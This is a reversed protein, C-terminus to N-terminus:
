ERNAELEEKSVYLLAHTSDFKTYDPYEGSETEFIFNGTDGKKYGPLLPARPHCRVGQVLAIGDRIITAAMIGAAAQLTIQYRRNDLRISLSQNAIAALPIQIM